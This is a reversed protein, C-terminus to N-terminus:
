TNEWSQVWAHMEAKLFDAHLAELWSSLAQKV